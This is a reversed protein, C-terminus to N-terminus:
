TLEADPMSWRQISRMPLRQQTRATSDAKRAMANVKGERIVQDSKQRVMRSRLGAQTATHVTDHSLPSLGMRLPKGCRFDSEAAVQPKLCM